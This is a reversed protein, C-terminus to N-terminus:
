HTMLMPSPLFTARAWEYLELDYSNRARIRELIFSSVNRPRQENVNKRPLSIHRRPDGTLNLLQHLRQVCMELQDWFCILDTDWLFQQTRRLTTTNVVTQVHSENHRGWAISAGSLLRTMENQYQNWYVCVTSNPTLCDEWTMNFSYGRLTAPLQYQANSEEEQQQQQQQLAATAKSQYFYFQSLVRDVPERLVTFRLCADTHTAQLFRPTFHGRHVFSQNYVVEARTQHRTSTAHSLVPAHITPDWAKATWHNQNSLQKLVFGLSTGATKPIHM